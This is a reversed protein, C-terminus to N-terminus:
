GTKARYSTIDRMHWRRELALNELNSEDPRIQVCVGPVQSSREKVTLLLNMSYSVSFM